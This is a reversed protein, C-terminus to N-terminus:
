NFKDKYLERKYHNYLISNEKSYKNLLDILASSDPANILGIDILTKFDASLKAYKDALGKKISERDRYEINDADQSHHLWVLSDYYDLSDQCFDSILLQEPTFEKGM